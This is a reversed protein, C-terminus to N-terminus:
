NPTGRGLHKEPQCGLDALAMLPRLICPCQFHSLHQSFVKLINELDTELRSECTFDGWDCSPMREKGTSVSTM